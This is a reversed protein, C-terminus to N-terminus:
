RKVNQLWKGRSIGWRVSLVGTAVAFLMGSWFEAIGQFPLFLGRALLSTPPLGYFFYMAGFFRNRAAPSMLFNAFPWEVALLVAVFLVGSAAAV